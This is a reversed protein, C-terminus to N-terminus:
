AFGIPKSRKVARSDSSWTGMAQQQLSRKKSLSKVSLDQSMSEESKHLLNSTLETKKPQESSSPEIWEKVVVTLAHWLKKTETSPTTIINRFTQGSVYAFCYVHVFFYVVAKIREGIEADPIKSLKLHETLETM